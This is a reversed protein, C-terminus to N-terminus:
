SDAFSDWGDSEYRNRWNKLFEHKALEMIKKKIDKTVTVLEPSGNADTLYHELEANTGFVSEFGHFTVDEPEVELVEAEANSPPDICVDSDYTESYGEKFEATVYLSVEAECLEMIKKTEDDADAIDPCITENYSHQAMKNVGNPPINKQPPKTMGNTRTQPRRFLGIAKDPSKGIFIRREECRQM